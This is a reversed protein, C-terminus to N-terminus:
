YNEVHKTITGGMAFGADTIEDLLRRAEASPLANLPPRVTRWGESDCFAAVISKLAPITGHSQIIARLQTIHQQLAEADPQHWREYLVRIGAPNVNASATITGAGGHRMTELLFVESGCFTALSPYERLVAATNQWDGSSDKLGVVVDGYDGLLRGILALSLSIQAVPPIHYLYLSLRADGVREIVAAYSAYLGEDDISKYYFPPLMLVGRCGRKVAHQTLRVTDTLACTGTGPMLREPPVGADILRDLLDIREDIGISNAEGTTGFVALGDAGQELLWHCHGAFAEPDPTLDAKFPTLVPVLVGRFPTAAHTM